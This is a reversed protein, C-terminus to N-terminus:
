KGPGLYILVQTISTLTTAELGDAVIPNTLEHGVKTNTDHFIINGLGDKLICTWTAGSPIVKIGTIQIEKLGGMLTAVTDIQMPNTTLNNAM